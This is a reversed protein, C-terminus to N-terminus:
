GFIPAAFATEVYTLSNALPLRVFSTGLPNKDVLVVNM